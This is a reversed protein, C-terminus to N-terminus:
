CLSIYIKLLIRTTPNKIKPTSKGNQNLHIQIQQELCHFILTVYM